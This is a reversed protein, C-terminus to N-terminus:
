DFAVLDALRELTAPGVGSVNDLDKLTEFAGVLERYEIIRLATQPGIGPLTELEPQTASNVYVRHRGSPTPLDANASQDSALPAHIQDGDRVAAALNILTRDAGAALGGAADLADAVRSGPPLQHIQNPQAVAGTVYVHIPAPSPSPLPTATPAPPHIIIAVPDPRALLLAAGGAAVIVAMVLFSLVLSRTSSVTSM